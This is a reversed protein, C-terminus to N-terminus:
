RMMLSSRALKEAKQDWVSGSLQAPRSYHCRGTIGALKYDGWFMVQKSFYLHDCSPSEEVVSMDMVKYDRGQCNYPNTVLDTSPLTNLCHCTNAETNIVAYQAGTRPRCTEM